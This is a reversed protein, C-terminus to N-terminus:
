WCYSLSPYHGLKNALPKIKKSYSTSNAKCTEHIDSLMYRLNSISPAKKQNLCGYIFFMMALIEINIVENYEDIVHGINRLDINDRVIPEHPDLIYSWIPRTLPCDYLAHLWTELMAREINFKM